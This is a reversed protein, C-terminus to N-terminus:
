REEDDGNRVDVTTEAQARNGKFDYATVVIEYSGDPGATTDWCNERARASPEQIWGEPPHNTIVFYTPVKTWLRREAEFLKWDKYVIRTLETAYRKDRYGKRFRIRDFDFSNREESRGSRKIEYDIRAVALRDGFGNEKSHAWLGADRMGVVIDVQGSVTVKGKEDPEFRAADNRDSGDNEFFHFPTQIVPPDEDVYDFHAYPPCIYKWDPWHEGESFVKELHIHELGDFSVVGLQAGREVFDGVEPQFEALHSYSWGYCPRGDEADAVVITSAVIAKVWGAKTAYIATGNKLVIDLGGHFYSSIEDGQYLPFDNIVWVDQVLKKIDRRGMDPAQHPWPLKEFSREAFPFTLDPVTADQLAGVLSCMLTVYVSSVMASM